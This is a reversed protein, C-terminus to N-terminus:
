KKRFFNLFYVWAGPKEDVVKRGDEYMRDRADPEIYDELNFEINPWHGGEVVSSLDAHLHKTLVEMYVPWKDKWSREEALASLVRADEREHLYDALYKDFFFYTSVKGKKESSSNGFAVRLMYSPYYMSIYMAVESKPKVLRWEWRDDNYSKMLDDMQSHHLYERGAIEFGFEVALAEISAVVNPDPFASYTM